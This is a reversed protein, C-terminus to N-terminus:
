QQAQANQAVARDKAVGAQAQAIQAQQAQAQMQQAQQIAAKAESEKKFMKGNAGRIEALRNLTWHADIYAPITQDFQALQGAVEITEIMGQGEEAMLDRAAPTMYDIVYLDAGSQMADIFKQPLYKVDHGQRELAAAVPDNPFYGFKGRRLCIMFATNIMPEFLEMLLRSVISRLTSQRIANRLLAERATMERENNMNILRDIMFHNSITNQIKEILDSVQSTDQIDYLKGVPPINPASKDVRLVTMAGASTDVIGNGAVSDNLVYMPPDLKKEQALMLDEWIQNLMMISPLANMGRGRGYKEKLRKALRSCAVPLEPYGSNRCIHKGEVEIHVSAIPMDKAAKSGKKRDKEPRPEIVHLVVVKDDYQKRNYLDRVRKSVNDFGYKEVHQQVNYEKRRYFKSARGVANEDLSFELISWPEVTLCGQLPQNENREEIFIASTGLVILDLMAEDLATALGADQDGMEEQLAETADSWFERMERDKGFIKQNGRLKFSFEGASWIYGLFASASTEAMHVPDDTWLHSSIFAGQSKTATFDARRQHVYESVLQWQNKWYNKETELRTECDLYEKASKAM